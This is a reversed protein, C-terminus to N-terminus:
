DDSQCRTQRVQRDSAASPNRRRDGIEAIIEAETIEQSEPFSQLQKVELNVSILM